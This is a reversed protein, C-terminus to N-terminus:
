APIRKVDFALMAWSLGNFILDIGVFLGIVWLSSSPWDKLILIGLLLTVIGNLLPWGWNHFKIQLSAVIRFLGGILFAVGLIFTLVALARDPHNLVVFGLVFYLIGALVHLLSGRWQGAWFSAVLEGIGALLLMLGFLIIMTIGTILMYVASSISVVGLVFMLIGLLLLWWWQKHLAHLEHRLTATELATSMARDSGM